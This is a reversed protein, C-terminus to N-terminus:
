SKALGVPLSRPLSFSFTSGVGEESKTLKITGGMQEILLKSTYLGLGTGRTTDQAYLGEGAQQFKRFLMMQMRSPIGKGTDSVSVSIQKLEVSVELTITGKETFKVANGVLNSLIQHVRDADGTVLPLKKLVAPLVITTQKNKALPGLENAVSEFIKQISFPKNQLNTQNQELRSIDLFENVISILRTSADQIDTIMESLGPDKLQKKFNSQIMNTSSQIAALPTRLEHSAISFFEERSREQTKSDTIDEILIVVGLLPTSEDYKDTTVPAIFLQMIRTEFEITKAAIPLRTHLCDTILQNLDCAKQLKDNISAITIDSRYKADQNGFFMKQAAGNILIIQSDANTMLYGANLSNISSELRIREQALEQTRDKVQREVIEKQQSLKIQAAELAEYSVRLETIDTIALLYGESLSDDVLKTVQAKFHQPKGSRDHAQLDSLINSPRTSLSNTFNIFDEDSLNKFLNTLARSGHIKISGFIKEAETNMYSIELKTNVVIVSEHMTSLISQALLVPSIRLSKYRTLGYTLLGATAVSFFTGLPPVFTINFLPLVIDTITGGLIPIGFALSYFLAQRRLVQNYNARRFQYLLLYGALFLGVVWLSQSIYAAGPDNNYGWPFLHLHEPALSFLLGLYNVQFFIMIGSALLLSPIIIKHRSDPKTFALAFLYMSVPTLSAGIGSFLIWFTAGQPTVSLRQLMEGLSFIFLAGIALILWNAEDGLKKFRTIGVICAINFVAGALSLLAYNNWRLDFLHLDPLQSAVYFPILIVVLIYIRLLRNKSPALTDPSAKPVAM